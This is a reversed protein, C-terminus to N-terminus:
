VEVQYALDLEDGARGRIGWDHRPAELIVIELDIPEIKLEAAAREYLLRYFTKKTEVSRGSFMIVEIILYRESRDPPTFFAEPELALVRHFRKEAPLGLAEVACAHVLDSIAAGSTALFSSHGYIKIQAM